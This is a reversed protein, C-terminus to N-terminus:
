GHPLSTTLSTVAFPTHRWWPQDKEALLLQRIDESADKLTTEFLADRQNLYLEIMPRLVKDPNDLEGGTIVSATERYIAELVFPHQHLHDPDTMDLLYCLTGLIGELLRCSNHGKLAKRSIMGPM